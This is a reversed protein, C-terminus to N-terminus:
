DPLSYFCTHGMLLSCFLEQTFQSFPFLLVVQLAPRRVNKESDFKPAVSCLQIVSFSYFDIDTFKVTHVGKSSEFQNDLASCCSGLFSKKNNPNVISHSYVGKLAAGCSWGM